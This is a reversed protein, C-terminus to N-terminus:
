AKTERQRILLDLRALSNWAEHAAHLEATDPDCEIGSKEFLWHRLKADDYREVGNPVEMWGNDTYKVAGYTGIRSVALLARAFGGLVLGPRVKGADLKAGPTNAALGNPDTEKIRVPGNIKPSTVERWMAYDLQRETASPYPTAM